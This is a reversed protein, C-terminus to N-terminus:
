YYRRAGIYRSKFYGKSIEAIKIEDNRKPAHVMKGDGIYIGVHSARGNSGFFVLDGEELDNYDIPYGEKMQADATRPINIGCLNYIAKTFGSCDMGEVVNNGGWKYPIGVFRKATEAIIYGLDKDKRKPKGTSRITVLEKANYPEAIFFDEIIGKEKLRKAYDKATNYDKFDGFRVVFFGDNRRFYFADLGQKELSIVLREANDLNRFAGVQIAYGAYNPHLSKVSRGSICSSILAIGLLLGLVKM